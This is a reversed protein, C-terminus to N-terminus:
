RPLLKAKDREKFQRVKEHHFTMNAFAEIGSACSVCFGPTVTSAGQRGLSKLLQLAAGSRM